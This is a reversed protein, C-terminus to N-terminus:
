TLENMFDRRQLEGLFEMLNFNPFQIPIYNGKIISEVTKGYRASIQDATGNSALATPLGHEFRYKLIREILGEAIDNKTQPEKGLEDIFLAGNLLVKRPLMWSKCYEDHLDPASIRYALVDGLLAKMILWSGFSSKGDGNRGFCFIGQSERKNVVRNVWLQGVRYINTYKEELNKDLGIGAFDQILDQYRLPIGYVLPDIGKETLESKIDM